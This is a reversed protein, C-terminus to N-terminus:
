HTDTPEGRGPEGGNGGGRDHDDVLDFGLAQGNSPGNSPLAM